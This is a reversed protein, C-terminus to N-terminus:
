RLKVLSGINHKRNYWFVFYVNRHEIGIFGSSVTFKTKRKTHTLTSRRLQSNVKDKASKLYDVNVLLKPQFYGYTTAHISNIM